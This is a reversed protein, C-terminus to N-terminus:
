RSPRTYAVAGDRRPDAAGIWAGGERAVAHVGGFYPDLGGAAQGTKPRYRVQFGRRSLDSRVSDELEANSEIYLDKEPVVHIRPAKVAAEVGNGVDVWHSITQAVTSIIRASGPSGLILGVEGDRSLVSPAMSSYPMRGAALAYPHGPRALEFEKLYDNYLFGLTPHAVRSGFYSNISQTVGVALGDADVVSFHTTEGTGEPPDFSSALDWALMKDIKESVDGQYNVLDAVPKSKRSRHGIRLAEALWILRASGKEAALDEVPAQELINLVQLVVWGGTPPPTTYVDWGRYTTKLPAVERPAPVNALDELTVWGGNLRMDEAIERAIAGRYFDEAGEEALRGLTEALLPQRFIRGSEPLTKDPMLFIATAARDAALEDGYNVLAWHRFGDLRFGKDAARIAPGLVQRWSIRGSGHNRLAHDLVRVTSPVSSLRRGTLLAPDIPSPISRPSFSTGNIVLPAVRRGHLILTTQGGLGSGAPETVALTFAVAVAADVANGGAELIEQGAQAAEPTAAAVVGTAQTPADNANGACATLLGATLVILAGTARKLLTM